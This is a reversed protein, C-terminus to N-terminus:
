FVHEGYYMRLTGRDSYGELVNEKGRWGQNKKGILHLKNNFFFLIRVILKFNVQIAEFCLLTKRHRLDYFAWVQLYKGSIM